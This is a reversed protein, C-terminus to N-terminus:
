ILLESCVIVPLDEHEAQSSQTRQQDLAYRTYLHILEQALQLGRIDARKIANPESNLTKTLPRRFAADLVNIQAKLDGDSTQAFLVRLERQVFRQATTSLTTLMFIVTLSRRRDRQPHRRDIRSCSLLDLRQHCVFRLTRDSSHGRLMLTHSCRRSGIFSRTLTSM